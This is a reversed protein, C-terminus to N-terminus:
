QEEHLAKLPPRYPRIIGLVAAPAASIIGHVFPNKGAQKAADPRM